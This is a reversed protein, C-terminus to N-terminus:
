QSAEPAPALRLTTLTVPRGSEHAVTVAVSFPLVPSQDARDPDLLPAPQMVITWALGDETTGALEGAALPIDAGVRELLSRAVQVAGVQHDGVATARLATSFSPFLAAAALAFIAVALIIEILTFGRARRRRRAADTM